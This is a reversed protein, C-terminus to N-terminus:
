VVSAPYIIQLKTAAAAAAAAANYQCAPLLLFCARGVRVVM